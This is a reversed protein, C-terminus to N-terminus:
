SAVIRKRQRTEPYQRLCSDAVAPLGQPLRAACVERCPNERESGVNFGTLDTM